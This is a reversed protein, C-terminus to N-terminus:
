SRMAQQWVCVSYCTTFSVEFAPKVDLGGIKCGVETVSSAWKDQFYRLAAEYRGAQSMSSRISTYKRKGALLTQVNTILM